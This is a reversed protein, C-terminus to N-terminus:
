NKIFLQTSVINGIQVQIHYLGNDLTSTEIAEGTTILAQDMTKEIIKIGFTNIAVIHPKIIPYSLSIFCFTAPILVFM